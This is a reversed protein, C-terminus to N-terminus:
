GPPKLQFRNTAIPRRTTIVSRDRDGNLTQALDLAFVPDDFQWSHSAAIDTASVTPAVADGYYVSCDVNVAQVPAGDPLGVRGVRPEIGVRKVNSIQLVEDHANAYNTLRICHRYISETESDGATLSSASIDGSILAIQSVTWNIASIAAHDDADDFAEQVVYAGTSHALLHVNVQCNAAQGQAVPWIGDRVLAFATKKAEERDPLYALAIDGSPWDFSVVTGAFGNAALNQKILRHRQLVLDATNNYGHIFVLVDGRSVGTADTQRPVQAMIDAVWAAQPMARAATLLSTDADDLKLFTTGSSTAPVTSGPIPRLTIIYDAM